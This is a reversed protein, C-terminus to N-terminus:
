ALTRLMAEHKYSGGDGFRAIVIGRERFVYMAQGGSGSAYALDDFRGSPDLWWGLGYRPNAVSGRFCEALAEREALLRAGSAFVGDRAITEGYRVWDRATMMAGTPLPQTGDALSRWSSISVGAPDLLRARLYVHPSLGRPALKRALVAGFVQLPIGGYTFTSGPENKLPLALAKAYLPVSAGLGGFGFGSTLSLLERLTVRSRWVDDRWEEITAAVPEDLDLLGDERAALALPGWFSKTGSYLAHARGADWDGDYIEEELSGDVSVLFARAGHKRSYALAASVNM